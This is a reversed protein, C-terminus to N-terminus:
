QLFMFICAGEEGITKLEGSKPDVIKIECHDLTKGVNDITSNPSEGPLPMAMCGGTETSGYRISFKKIDQNLHLFKEAVKVPTQASGTIIAELSPLRIYDKELLNIMDVTMTPVMMLHTSKHKNISALVDKTNYRYGTLLISMGTLGM